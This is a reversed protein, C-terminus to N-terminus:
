RVRAYCLCDRPNTSLNPHRIWRRLLGEPVLGVREMVGASASNEVDTVGWVRWIDPQALAWAAVESLAETMYGQRWFARGLVYGFNM